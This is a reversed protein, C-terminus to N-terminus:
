LAGRMLRYHQKKICLDQIVELGAKRAQDAAQDHRVVEQLWLVKAGKAMAQEAVQPVAESKRFVDVLDVPEPISTLDPYSKEGLIEEQSPNVPIIRFGNKQLYVAVKNSMRDPKPSLGVVAVTRHEGLIEKLRDDGPNAPGIEQM